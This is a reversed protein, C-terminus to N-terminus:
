TTVPSARAEAAPAFVRRGFGFASRVAACQMTECHIFLDGLAPGFGFGHSYSTYQQYDIEYQWTAGQEQSRRPVIRPKARSVPTPMTATPTTPLFPKYIRCGFVAAIGATRPDAPQIPRIRAADPAPQRQARSAHDCPNAFDVIAASILDLDCGNDHPAHVTGRGCNDFDPVIRVEEPDLELRAHPLGGALM